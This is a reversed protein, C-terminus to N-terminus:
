SICHGISLILCMLLFFTKWLIYGFKTLMILFSLIHSNKATPRSQGCFRKRWNIGHKGPVGTTSIQSSYEELQLPPIKRSCVSFKSNLYICCSRQLNLKYSSTGRRIFLNQIGRTSWIEPCKCVQAISLSLKILYQGLYALSKSSVDIKSKEFQLLNSYKHCFMWSSFRLYHGYLYQSCISAKGAQLM